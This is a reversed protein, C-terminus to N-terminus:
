LLLSLLSFNIGIPQLEISNPQSGQTESSITSGSGGGDNMQGPINYCLIGVLVNM